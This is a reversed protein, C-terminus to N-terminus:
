AKGGKEHEKRAQLLGPVLGVLVIVISTLLGLGFADWYRRSLGPQGYTQEFAKGGILGTIMGQIRYPADTAADYYPRVMPEVQASVVMIMPTTGRAQSTQEIWARATDANDTLVLLAAFDSLQRVGELVPSEWAPAAATTLPVAQQPASAFYYIGAPGGPLYGLNVYQAGADLHKAQTARLFHEALAPGSPSTSILTLRAGQTILYDMVPAAAMHLEASFAPDYDFVVLIPSASPIESLVQQTRLWESPFLALDPALETKGILPLLISVILLLASLVRGFTGSIRSPARVVKAQGERLVMKELLEADARQQESIQLKLSYAPAKRKPTIPASIPIVGRLGRLPGSSEVVGEKESLDPQVTPIVAEVPKMAQVWSPLEAAELQGAEFAEAAVEKTEPEREPVVSELWDPVELGFDVSAVGQPPEGEELFALSRESAATRAADMEALWEPTDFSPAGEQALSADQPTEESPQVDFSTLWEPLSFAQKAEPPLSETTFAPTNTSSTPPTGGLASLWDPIELPLIAEESPKEASVTPQQVEASFEKLWAPLDQSASESSSQEALREAEFQKLRDPEVESSTPKEAAPAVAEPVEAGFQKLWDPEAETPSPEGSPPSESILSKLWDSESDAMPLPEGTSASQGEFQKLWDEESTAPLAQEVPAASEEEQWGLSGAQHLDEGPATEAQDKFMGLWDPLFSEAQDSPVSTTTPTEPEELRTFWEPFTEDKGEPHPQAVEPVPPIPAKAKPTEQAKATPERLAALWDPIEEQEEEEEGLRSLWDLADSEAQPPSIEAHELAPPEPEARDRQAVNESERLARLWSPMAQELEGTDKPIPVEGPRIPEAPPLKTKEFEGTPRVVPREGARIPQSDSQKAM